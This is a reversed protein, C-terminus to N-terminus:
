EVISERRCKGDDRIADEVSSCRLAWPAVLGAINAVIMDANCM